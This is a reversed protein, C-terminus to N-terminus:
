PDKEMKLRKILGKAINGYIHKLNNAGVATALIDASAIEEAIKEVDRGHIASVNEVWITEPNDGRIEIRYKRKENLAKVLRDDIDIFVVEYGARSFLYGVLSRGINGAGFIVIKKM